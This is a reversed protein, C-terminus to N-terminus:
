STVWFLMRLSLLLSTSKATGYESSAVAGVDSVSDIRSMQRERVLSLPLM